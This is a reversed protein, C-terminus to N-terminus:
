YYFSNILTCSEDKRTDSNLKKLIRNVKSSHQHPASLMRYKNCSRSSPSDGNSNQRPYLQRKQPAEHKRGIKWFFHKQCQSVIGGVTEELNTVPMENYSWACDSDSFDIKCVPYVLCLTYTYLLM